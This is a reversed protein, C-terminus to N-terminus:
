APSTAGTSPCQTEVLADAEPRSFTAKFLDLAAQLLEAPTMADLIEVPYDPSLALFAAAADARESPGPALATLGDVTATNAKIIGYTLPKM